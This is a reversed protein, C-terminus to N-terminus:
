ASGPIHLRLLLGAVFAVATICQTMAGFGLDGLGALVPGLSWRALLARVRRTALGQVNSRLDGLGDFSLGFGAAFLSILGVTRRNPPIEAM